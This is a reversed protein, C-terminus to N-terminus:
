SVVNGATYYRSQIRAKRMAEVAIAEANAKAQLSDRLKATLMLILESDVTQGKQALNEIQELEQITM